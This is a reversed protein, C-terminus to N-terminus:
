DRKFVLHPELQNWGKDISLPLHLESLHKSNHKHFLAETEARTLGLREIYVNTIDIIDRILLSHRPEFPAESSPERERTTSNQPGNLDIYCVELHTALAKRLKEEDKEAEEELLLAIGVRANRFRAFDGEKIGDLGQREYANRRITHLASHLQEPREKGYKERQAARIREFRAREAEPLEELERKIAREHEIDEAQSMRAERRDRPRSQFYIKQLESTRPASRSRERRREEVFKAFSIVKLLTLAVAPANRKKVGKDVGNHNSLDLIATDSVRWLSGLSDL